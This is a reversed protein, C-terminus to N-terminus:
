AYYGWMFVAVAMMVLANADVTYKWIPDERIDPQKESAEPTDENNATSSSNEEAEIASLFLFSNTRGAFTNWEWEDTEIVKKKKSAESNIEKMREEPERWTEGKEQEDQECDLDKRKEKSHRLSFVLRHLQFSILAPFVFCPKLYM